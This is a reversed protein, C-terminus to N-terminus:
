SVLAKPTMKPAGDKREYEIGAEQLARETSCLVMDDDWEQSGEPIAFMILGLPGCSYTQLAKVCANFATDAEVEVTLAATKVTFKM